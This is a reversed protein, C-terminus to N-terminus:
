ALVDGVDFALVGRHLTERTAGVRGWLVFTPDDVPRPV